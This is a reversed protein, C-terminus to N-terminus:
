EPWALGVGQMAEPPGRSPGWPSILTAGGGGLGAGGGAPRSGVQELTLLLFEQSLLEPHLLLDAAGSGAGGDGSGEGASRELAGRAAM